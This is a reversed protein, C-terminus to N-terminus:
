AGDFVSLTVPRMKGSVGKVAQCVVGSPNHV